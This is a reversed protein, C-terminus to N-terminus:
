PWSLSEASTRAGYRHRRRGRLCARVLSAASAGGYLLAATSFPGLDRGAWTVIPTTVGFAIAAVAALAVGVTIPRQHHQFEAPMRIRGKHFQLLAATTGPRSGPARGSPSLVSHVSSASPLCHGGVQGVQVHAHCESLVALTMGTSICGISSVLRV